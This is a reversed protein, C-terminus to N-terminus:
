EERAEYRNNKTYVLFTRFRDSVARVTRDFQRSHVSRRSRQASWFEMTRHYMEQWLLTLLALAQELDEEKKAQEMMQLYEEDTM